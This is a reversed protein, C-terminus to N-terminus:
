QMMLPLIIAMAFQLLTNPLESIDKAVNLDAEAVIIDECETFGINLGTAIYVIEGGNGFEVTLGDSLKVDVILESLFDALEVGTLKGFIPSLDMGMFNALSLIYNEDIDVFGDEAPIGFYKNVIALLDRDSKSNVIIRVGNKDENVIFIEGLLEKNEAFIAAIDIVGDENVLNEIRIYSRISTPEDEPAGAGYYEVSVTGNYEGWKINMYADGYTFDVIEFDEVSEQEGNDYTVYAYIQDRIQEDTTEEDMSVTGFCDFEVISLNDPDYVRVVAYASMDNRNVTLISEGTTNFVYDSAVPMFNMAVIEFTGEEGGEYVHWYVNGDTMTVDVWMNEQITAVDTGLPVNLTDIQMYSAHENEPDYIIVYIDFEYREAFKITIYDAFSSTGDFGEITYDTFPIENDDEDFTYVFLHQRLEEETTGIPFKEGDNDFRAGYGNAFRPDEETGYDSDYEQEDSGYILGFVKAAVVDFLTAPEGNIEFKYAFKYESTEPAGVMAAIRSMDIYVYRNNLVAAAISAEENFSINATVYNADAGTLLEELHLVIELAADVDKQPLKFPVTIELQPAVPEFAEPLVFAEEAIEVAFDISVSNNTRKNNITIGAALLEEKITLSVEFDIDGAKLAGDFAGDIADIIANIDITEDGDATNQNGYMAYLSQVLTIVKASDARLTYVGDSRSVSINMLSIMPSALAGDVMDLASSVTEFVSDAKDEGVTFDFGSFDITDIGFIAMIDERSVTAGYFTLSGDRFLVVSKDDALTKDVLAFEIDSATKNLIAKYVLEKAESEGTSSAASITVAIAKDGSKTIFNYLPILEDRIEPLPAEETYPLRITKEIGEAAVVVEIYNGDETITSSKISFEVKRSVGNSVVEVSLADAISATDFQYNAGEDFSVNLEPEPEPEPDVIESGPDETVTDDAIKETTNEPKKGNDGENCATFVFLCAFILLFISLIVKKKTNKM